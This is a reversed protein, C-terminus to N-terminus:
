VESTLSTHFAFVCVDVGVGGGRRREGMSFMGGRFMRGGTGRIQVVVMRGTRNSHRTLRGARTSM